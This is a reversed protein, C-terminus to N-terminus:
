DGTHLYNGLPRNMASLVALAAAALPSEKVVVAGVLRQESGTSRYLSTVMLDSDFAHILKVGITRLDLSEGILNEMARITARATTKLEIAPGREGTAEGTHVTGGWELSVAISIRGTEDTRTVGEFRVRRRPGSMTPLTVRVGLGAPDHGLQALRHRVSIEVPSEEYGPDRVVWVDTGSRPDIAAHLVGDLAMLEKELTERADTDLRATM